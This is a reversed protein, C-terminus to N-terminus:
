LLIDPLPHRELPLMTCYPVCLLCSLLAATPSVFIASCVFFRNYGIKKSEDSDCTQVRVASALAELEDYSGSNPARTLLQTPAGPPRRIGTAHLSNSHILVILKRDGEQGVTVAARSGCDCQGRKM